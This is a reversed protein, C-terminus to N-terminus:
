TSLIQDDRPVKLEREIADKLEGVTSAASPIEVRDTGDRTRVRVIM